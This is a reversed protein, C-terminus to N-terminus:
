RPPRSRGARRRRGSPARGRRARVDLGAQGAESIRRFRGDRKDNTPHYGLMYYSRKPSSAIWRRRSTTPSRRSAAQKAPWCALSDQSTQAQWIPPGIGLFPDDPLVGAGHDARRCPSGARDIAYINVHLPDGRRHGGPNGDAAHLRRRPEAARTQPPTRLGGDTSSSTSTETLEVLDSHLQSATAEGILINGEPPDRGGSVPEEGDFCTRAHHSSPGQRRCDDDHQRDATGTIRGAPEPVGLPAQGSSTRRRWCGGATADQRRRHSSTHVVAVLDNSGLNRSIFQKAAEGRPHVASRRTCTTWCSICAAAAGRELPRGDPDATGRIDSAGGPRHSHRHALVSHSRRRCATQLGPVGGGWTACAARRTASWRTSGSSTWRRSRSQRFRPM